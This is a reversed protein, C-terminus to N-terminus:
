AVVVLYTLCFVAGDDTSIDPLVSYYNDVEEEIREFEELHKETAVLTQAELKTQVHDLKERLSDCLGMATKLDTELAENSKKLKGNEAESDKLKKGLTVMEERAMEADRRMAEM